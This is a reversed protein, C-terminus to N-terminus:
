VIVVGIATGIISGRMTGKVVLQLTTMGKKKMNDMNNSRIIILFHPIEDSVNEGSIM